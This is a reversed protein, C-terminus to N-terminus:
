AAGSTRLALMLGLARSMKDGVIRALVDNRGGAAFPVILTIPRSPYSQAWAFGSASVSLAALVAAVFRLRPRGPRM